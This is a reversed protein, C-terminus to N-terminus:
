FLTYLLPALGSTSFLLLNALLWIAVAIPVLWWRFFRRPARRGGDTGHPQRRHTSTQRTVGPKPGHPKASRRVGAAAVISASLDPPADGGLLEALMVDLAHEVVARPEAM